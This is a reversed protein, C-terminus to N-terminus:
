KAANPKSEVITRLLQLKRATRPNKAQPELTKILRGAREHVDRRVADYTGAFLDRAPKNFIIEYAFVTIVSPSRRLSEYRSVKTGSSAGLLLAVESQSFGYRRRPTRLYHQLRKTPWLYL